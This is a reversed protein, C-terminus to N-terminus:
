PAEETGRSLQVIMQRAAEDDGARARERLQDLQNRKKAARTTKLGFFETLLVQDADLGHISQRLRGAWSENKGKIKLAIINMWELSGAVLPSHSTFVFQMRPLARAVTSIVKMQWKPHLHLDIEDVLAIGTNEALKKGPSAAFCIHYLLDAVWGIFARYGDSLTQFPIHLGGREFLYDGREIRGTFRYHGPGLLKNLLRVVQGYRAKDSKKLDPLWYTLPILSFSDEFLSAVRQARAFRNSTRAGMDFHEPREVRRTAGYGVVFCADNNSEYVAEWMGADPGIFEYIDLEGRRKVSIVSEATDGPLARDQEHLAFSAALKAGGQNAYGNARRVLGPDRLGSEKAAAGFAALAIMRLVTSKGSGNDGLLLNVNRLKPRPPPNKLRSGKPAFEMDPHVFPITEDVFTRVEELRLQKIFM